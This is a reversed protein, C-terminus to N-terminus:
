AWDQPPVYLGPTKGGWTETAMDLTASPAAQGYAARVEKMYDNFDALWEMGSAKKFRWVVGRAM